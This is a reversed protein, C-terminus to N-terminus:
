KKELYEYEQTPMLQQLHQVEVEFTNFALQEMQEDANISACEVEYFNENEPEKNVAEFPKEVCYVRELKSRSLVVVVHPCLAADPKYSIQFDFVKAPVSPLLRNPYSSNYIVSASILKNKIAGSDFQLCTHQEHIFIQQKLNESHLFAPPYEPSHSMQFKQSLILAGGLVIAEEANLHVNVESRGFFNQHKSTMRTDFTDFFLSPIM